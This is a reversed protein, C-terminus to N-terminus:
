RRGGSVSLPRSPGLSSSSLRSPLRSCPPLSPLSTLCSTEKKDDDGSSDPGCRWASIFDFLFYSFVPSGSNVHSPIAGGFYRTLLQPDFISAMPLVRLDACTVFFIRLGRALGESAGCGIRDLAETVIRWPALKIFGDLLLIMMQISQMNM